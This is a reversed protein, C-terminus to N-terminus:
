EIEWEERNITQEPVFSVRVTNPDHVMAKLLDRLWKEFELPSLSTELSILAQRTERKIM